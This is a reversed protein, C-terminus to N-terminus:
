KSVQRSYSNNISYLHDSTRRVYPHLTLSITKTRTKLDSQLIVFENSVLMDVDQDRDCNM